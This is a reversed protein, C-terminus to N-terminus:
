TLNLKEMGLWTIAQPVDGFHGIKIDLPVHFRLQISYNHIENQECHYACASMLRKAPITTNKTTLTKNPYM